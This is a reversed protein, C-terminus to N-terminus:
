LSDYKDNLKKIEKIAAKLQAEMKKEKKKLKIKFGNLLIRKM